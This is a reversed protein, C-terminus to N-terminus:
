NNKKLIKLIYKGFLKPEEIGFAYTLGFYILVGAATPAFVTILQSILNRSLNELMIDRLFSVAGFMVAASAVMKFFAIFFSKTLIGGIKKQLPIILAVASVVAAASSAMALGAIDFKDILLVCLIANTAIAIAGSLMPIKGNQMSYYARNLITQFGFGLMGISLFVLAKSTIETAFPTFSNREYVLRILPTSLSILGATMPILLYMTSKLTQGITKVYAGSEENTALRSLRPFIVNAVSLVFVGVTITYITNAYNIATVGSGEFLRSAFKQNIFINIPQVWTSVMVPLMLFIIKKMGESKFSFDPRFFYGKKFLSPIQIVIQMTWGILFAVALGYIGFRNSFFIFYLIIIGNSVISLAAPISFEDLSQLIGVFSYAIGTLVVTPFLVILLNSCLKATAEDYGDAFFATLHPAFIIGLTTILMTFIFVATIFTNALSYAEKKGKKELYENFVPIFSSSIASAFVADFFNRPMSSATTFANAEMTIGFIGAFFQERVLGLIKGIVMIAMMYSIIKATSKLSESM